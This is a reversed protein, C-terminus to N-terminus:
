LEPTIGTTVEYPNGSQIAAWEEAYILRQGCRCFPHQTPAMVGSPYPQNFPTPGAETNQLCIDVAGADRWEKGVAGSLQGFKTVGAQYANVSETRAIKEARAIPNIITQIRAIAQDTTEGVGLSTKVSQAIDKRVTEMINYAANPNDIIKGGPLVRKGVLSAVQQTSLEQILATTSPVGIHVNSYIQAAMFGADVAKHIMNLTVQLFTGDNQDIQQENVIVNVNYDLRVQHNYQEINILASAQQQMSKFFRVLTLQLEAEAKLLDAHQQPTESYIPAWDESAALMATLKVIEHDVSDM